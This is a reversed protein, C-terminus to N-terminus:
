DPGLRNCARGARGAPENNPASGTEPTQRRRTASTTRWGCKRGIAEEPGGVRRSLDWSLRTVAAYFSSYTVPSDTQGRRDLFACLLRPLLRLRSSHHPHYFLPCRTRTVRVRPSLVVAKAHATSRETATSACHSSTRNQTQAWKVGTAYSTFKLVAHREVCKADGAMASLFRSACSQM